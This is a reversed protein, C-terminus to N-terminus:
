PQQTSSNVICELIVAAKLEEPSSFIDIVGQPLLKITTDLFDIFDEGSVSDAANIAQLIDRTLDLQFVTRNFFRDNRYRDFAQRLRQKKRFQKYGLEEAINEFDADIRNGGRPITLNTIVQQVTTSTLAKKHLLDSWTLSDETVEGKIGLEDILARCIGTLSAQSLPYMQEVLENIRYTAVERFGEEPIDTTIFNINDPFGNLLKMESGIGDKLTKSDPLDIHSFPFSLIDVGNGSILKLNFGNPTVLNMKTVLNAYHKGDCSSILKGLVSKGNKLRLLKTTTYRGENTKVQNFEYLAIKEDLSNAIVVDEHLEVFVAYQEGNKHNELIRCLAWYYQYRYKRSTNPGAKERQPALLPNAAETAM